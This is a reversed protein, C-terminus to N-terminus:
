PIDITACDVPSLTLLLYPYIEGDVKYHVDGAFNADTEGSFLHDAAWLGPRRASTHVILGIRVMGDAAMVASGDFPLAVRAASFYIGRLTIADGPELTPVSRFVLTQNPPNGDYSVVVCRDTAKQPPAASAIEPIAFLLGLTLIM